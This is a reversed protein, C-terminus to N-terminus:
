FLLNLKGFVTGVLSTPFRRVVTPWQTTGIYPTWLSLSLSLSLSLCFLLLRAQCPFTFCFTNQKQLAVSFFFFTSKVPSLKINWLQGLKPFPQLGFGKGGGFKREELRRTEYRSKMTKLRMERKIQFTITLRSSSYVTAVCVADLYCQIKLNLIWPDTCRLIVWYFYGVFHLRTVSNIIGDNMSPEVHKSRSGSM